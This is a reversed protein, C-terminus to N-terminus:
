DHEKNIITIDNSEAVKCFFEIMEHSMQIFDEKPMGAALNLFFRVLVTGKHHFMAKPMFIGRNFHGMTNITTRFGRYQNDVKKLVIKALEELFEEETM